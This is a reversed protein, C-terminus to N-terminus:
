TELGLLQRRRRGPWGVLPRSAPSPRAPLAKLKSALAPARRPARAPPCRHSGGGCHRPQPLQRRGRRPQARWTSRPARAGRRRRRRPRARPHQLRKASCASPVHHPAVGVPECRQDDRPKPVPIRSHPLDSPSEEHHEHLSSMSTVWRPKRNRQNM